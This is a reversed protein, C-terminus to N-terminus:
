LRQNFADHHLYHIWRFENALNHFGHEIVRSKNCWRRGEGFRFSFLLLSFLSSEFLAVPMENFIHSINIANDDWVPWINAFFRWGVNGIVYFGAMCSVRQLIQSTAAIFLVWFRNLRHLGDLGLVLLVLRVVVTKNSVLRVNRGYGIDLSLIFHKSVGDVVTDTPKILTWCEVAILQCIFEVLHWLFSGRMHLASAERTFVPTWLRTKSPLM